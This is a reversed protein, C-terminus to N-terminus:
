SLHFLPTTTRHANDPKEKRNGLSPAFDRASELVRYGRGDAKLWTLVDSDLRMAVPKKTPRYFKSIEVTNWELVPPIDSFDIEGGSKAAIAQIDPKLEKTGTPHPKFQHSVKLLTKWVPSL